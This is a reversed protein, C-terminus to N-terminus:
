LALIADFADMGLGDLVGGDLRQTDSGYWPRQLFSFFTQTSWEHSRASQRPEHRLM